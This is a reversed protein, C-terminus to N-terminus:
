RLTDVTDHAGPTSPPALENATRSIYFTFPVVSTASASIISSDSVDDPADLHSLEASLTAPVEASLVAALTPM